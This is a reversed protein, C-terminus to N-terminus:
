HQNVATIPPISCGLQGGKCHDKEIWVEASEATKLYTGYTPLNKQHFKTEDLYQDLLLPQAKTVLKTLADSVSAVFVVVILPTWNEELENFTHPLYRSEM